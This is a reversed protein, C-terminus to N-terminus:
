AVYVSASESFYKLINCMEVPNVYIFHKVYEITFSELCKEIRDFCLVLLIKAMPRAVMKLILVTFKYM